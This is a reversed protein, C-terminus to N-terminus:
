RTPWHSWLSGLRRVCCTSPGMCGTPPMCATVSCHLRSICTNHSHQAPVLKGPTRSVSWSSWSSPGHQAPRRWTQLTYAPLSDPPHMCLVASLGDPCARARPMGVSCRSRCRGGEEGEGPQKQPADAARGAPAVEPKDYPGAFMAEEDKVHWQWGLQQEHIVRDAQLLKKAVAQVQEQKMTWIQVMLSPSQKPTSWHQQVKQPRSSHGRQCLVHLMGQQRAYSVQPVRTHLQAAFSM